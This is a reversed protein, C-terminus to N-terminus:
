QALPTERVSLKLSLHLSLFFLNAKQYTTSDGATLLVQAVQAFSQPYHQNKKSAKGRLCASLRYPNQSMGLDFARKVKTNNMEM